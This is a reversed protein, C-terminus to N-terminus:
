PREWPEDRDMPGIRLSAIKWAGDLYRLKLSLPYQRRHVDGVQSESVHLLGVAEGAHPELRAEVRHLELVLRPHRSTLQRLAAEAGQIGQLPEGPVLEVRSEETLWRSLEERFRAERASPEETEAYSLRSVSLSLARELAASQNPWLVLAAGIIAVGFGLFLLGRRGQLLPRARPKRSSPAPPPSSLAAVGFKAGFGLAAYRPGM